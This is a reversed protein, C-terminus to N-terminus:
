CTTNYIAHDLDTAFPIAVFRGGVQAAQRAFPYLNGLTSVDLLSDLPQLLGAAAAAPVESTDLVVIDPLISPAVPQAARMLDLLGGRGYRAKTVPTVRVRGAQALEFDRVYRSVLSGAAGNAGPSAFDPTWWTLSTSTSQPLPTNSSNTAPIQPVVQTGAGVPMAAPSTAVPVPRGSLDVGPTSSPASCATLGIVLLGLLFRLRHTRKLAACSVYM